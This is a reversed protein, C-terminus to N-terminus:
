QHLHKYFNRKVIDLNNQAEELEKYLTIVGLVHMPSHVTWSQEAHLPGGRAIFLERGSKRVRLMFTEPMQAIVSDWTPEVVNKM